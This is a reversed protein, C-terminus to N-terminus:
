PHCKGVQEEFLISVEQIHYGQNEISKTAESPNLGILPRDPELDIEKWPQNKGIENKAESPFDNSNIQTQSPVIVYRNHKKMSPYVKCKM